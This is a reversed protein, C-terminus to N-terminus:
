RCPGVEFVKTLKFALQAIAIRIAPETSGSTSAEELASLFEKQARVSAFLQSPKYIM